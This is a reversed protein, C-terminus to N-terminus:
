RMKICFDMEQQHPFIAGRICERELHSFFGEGRGEWCFFVPVGWGGGWGGKFVPHRSAAFGVADRGFLCLFPGPTGGKYLYFFSSTQIKDFQRM